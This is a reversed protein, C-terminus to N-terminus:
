RIPLGFFAAVGNGTQAAQYQELTNLKHAKSAKRNAPLVYHKREVGTGAMAASHSDRYMSVSRQKDHAVERRYGQPIIPDSHSGQEFPKDPISEVQIIRKNAGLGNM